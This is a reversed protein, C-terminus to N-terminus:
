RSVRKEGPRGPVSLGPCTERYPQGIMYRQWEGASMNRPARQCAAELLDEMRTYWQRVTGDESATLIRSEDGNWVAQNVVRTHGPLTFLETGTEADWVRAACKGFFDARMTVVAVMQGGTIGSAYLLNAIFGARAQEDRCLTFVEEFQDEQWPEGPILHWKDLFPTLGGEERLRRAIAEVAPKDASNHSLFVDYAYRSM